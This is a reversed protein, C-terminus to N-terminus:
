SAFSRVITCGYSLTEPIPVPLGAHLAEIAEYIYTRTPTRQRFSVDDFAGQYRLLGHADILFIHPTTVAGYLDAVQQDPDRLVWPLGREQAAQRLLDLPENANCAISILAARDRWQVLARDAREVWPCEASWFNVLTLRGRFDALSIPRGELDELTFLPAPQGIHLVTM